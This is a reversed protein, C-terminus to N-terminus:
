FRRSTKAYTNTQPTAEKGGKLNVEYEGDENKKIVIGLASLVKKANLFDKSGGATEKAYEKNMTKLFSM